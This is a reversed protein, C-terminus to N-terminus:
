MEASLGSLAKGMTNYRKMRNRNVNYKGVASWLIM